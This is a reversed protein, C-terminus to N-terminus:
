RIYYNTGSNIGVGAGVFGGNENKVYYEVNINKVEEIKANGVVLIPAVVDDDEEEIVSINQVLKGDQRTNANIIEINENEPEEEVNFVNENKVNEGVVSEGAHALVWSPSYQPYDIM